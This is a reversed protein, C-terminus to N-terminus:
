EVEYFFLDVVNGCPFIDGRMVSEIIIRGVEGTLRRNSSFTRRLAAAKPWLYFDVSIQIANELYQRYHVIVNKKWFHVTSFDGPFGKIFGRVRSKQILIPVVMRQPPTMPRSRCSRPLGAPMRVLIRIQM